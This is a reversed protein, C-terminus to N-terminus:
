MVLFREDTCWLNANAFTIPPVLTRQLAQIFAPEPETM